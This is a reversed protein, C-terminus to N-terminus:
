LIHVAPSPIYFASGQATKGKVRGRPPRMTAPYRAAKVLRLPVSHSLDIMQTGKRVAGSDRNRQRTDPTMRSPVRKM